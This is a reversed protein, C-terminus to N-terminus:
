HYFFDEFCKTYWGCRASSIIVIFDLLTVIFSLINFFRLLVQMHIKYSEVSSRWWWHWRSDSYAMFNKDFALSFFKCCKTKIIDVRENWCMRKKTRDSLRKLELLPFHLSFQIVIKVILLHLNIIVNHYRNYDWRRFNWNLTSNFKGDAFSIRPLFFINIIIPFINLPNSRFFFWNLHNKM